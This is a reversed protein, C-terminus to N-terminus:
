EAAVVSCFAVRGRGRVNIYDLILAAMDAAQSTFMSVDDTDESAANWIIISFQTSSGGWRYIDAYGFSALTDREDAGLFHLGESNLAIVCHAPFSDMQSPFRHKRVHFFCTGYLPHDKVAQVFRAQVAEPEAELCSARHKLVLAAWDRPAKKSRWSTPVYEMLDVAVLDDVDAPMDEGLDVAM